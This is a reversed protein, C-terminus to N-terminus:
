TDPIYRDITYKRKSIYQQLKSVHDSDVQCDAQYYTDLQEPDIALLHAQSM